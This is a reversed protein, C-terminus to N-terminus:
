TDIEDFVPYLGEDALPHFPGGAPPDEQRTAALDVKDAVIPSIM